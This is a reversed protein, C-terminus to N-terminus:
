ITLDITSLWLFGNNGYELFVVLLQGKQCEISLARSFWQNKTNCHYCHAPGLPILFKIGTRYPVTNKCFGPIGTNKPITYAKYKWVPIKQFNNPIKRYKKIPATLSWNLFKECNSSSKNMHLSGLFCKMTKVIFNSCYFIYDFFIFTNKPSSYSLHLQHFHINSM